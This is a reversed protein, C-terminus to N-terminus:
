RRPRLRTSMVTGSRQDMEAYGRLTAVSATRTARDDTAFPHVLRSEELTVESDMSTLRGEVVERLPAGESSEVDYWVRVRRGIQSRLGNLFALEEPNPAAIM